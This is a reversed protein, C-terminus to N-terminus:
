EYEFIHREPGPYPEVEKDEEHKEDVKFAEASFPLVLDADALREGHGGDPDGDGQKEAGADVDEVGVGSLVPEEM